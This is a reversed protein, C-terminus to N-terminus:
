ASKGLHFYAPLTKLRPDDVAGGVTFHYLSQWSLDAVGLLRHMADDFFCGIGTGRVGAAEAELYLAQGILGTEWFLRPYFWPGLANLSSQFEALLGVAFVGDAAIDQQCSIVRATERMDGPALRYLALGPPCGPPPRWEFEPRLAARLSARQAPDRLLLYLGSALDDVRHVFLALAIRPRWPLVAFWAPALRPTLRALLRYFAERGLATHGDMGVASRRHLILRRAPVPREPAPSDVAGADGAWASGTEVPDVVADYRTAAAVQDIVPWDHQHDSLRNPEGEPATQALRALLAAPLRLTVRESSASPPFVVLLADAHEAESGQRDQVGLLQALEQDTISTLLRTRWGLTAAALTVAGIAHGVDHQCYRFAREGYKWSERWYISTLGVLAAGAPLQRAIAGWEAETLVRRRELAHVFPAYHWVAPADSLDAIPGAILYGETPHLNGSSPNVRLSWRSGGAQKWASLALSDYFLRSIAARNPPQTEVGASAFLADYTPGTLSPHELSLSHAGAYRRFPDPQSAWDLYGLSRAYAHLHHKSRDHYALTAALSDYDGGAM